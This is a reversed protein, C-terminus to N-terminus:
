EPRCVPFAINKPSEIRNKTELKKNTKERKTFCDIYLCQTELFRFEALMRNACYKELGSKKLLDKINM